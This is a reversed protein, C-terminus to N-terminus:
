PASRAEGVAPPRAPWWSCARAATRAVGPPPRCGDARDAIATWVVGTWPLHSPCDTAMVAQRYRAPELRGLVSKDDQNPV